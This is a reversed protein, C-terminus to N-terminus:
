AALDFMQKALVPSFEGARRSEALITDILKALKEPALRVKRDFQWQTLLEVLNRIFADQAGIPLFPTESDTGYVIYALKVNHTAGLREIVDGPVKRKGTEYHHYAIPSIDLTKAMQVQSLELKVRIIKLRQGIAPQSVAQSKKFVHNTQKNLTGSVFSHDIWQRGLTRM